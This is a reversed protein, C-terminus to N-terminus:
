PNWGKTILAITDRGAGCGLDIADSLLVNKSLMTNM